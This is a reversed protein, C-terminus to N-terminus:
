EALMHDIVVQGGLLVMRIDETNHIDATPDSGVVVLDAALGPAITGFEDERRLLKANGGTAAHIAQLPTMGAECLLALEEHLCKGFPLFPIGSDCGAGIQVGAEIMQGVAKLLAPMVPEAEKISGDHYKTGIMTPVVWVNRSTLAKLLEPTMERGETCGNNMTHEVTDVGADVVVQMEALNDVHVMCPKGNAHAANVMRVIQEKPIRPLKNPWDFVNDNSYYGKIWDVGADALEKVIAEMDSNEDVFILEHEKTGENQFFVSCFPHGGKAQIMKGAVILRPCRLEGKAAADRVEIIDPMCSGADRLTTVGWQLAAERNAAFDYTHIRGAHPPHDFGATGGMHTHADILGPMLFAGKLDIVQAGEPIPLNAGVEKIKKGDVLVTMGPQAPAGTGDIVTANRFALM